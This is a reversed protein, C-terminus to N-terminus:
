SQTLRNFTFVRVIETALPHGQKALRLATIYSAYASKPLEKDCWWRKADNSLNAYHMSLPQSLWWEMFEKETM